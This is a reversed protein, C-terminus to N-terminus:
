ELDRFAAAYGIDGSRAPLGDRGLALVMFYPGAYPSAFGRAEAVSFGFRGYYAPDGLVFIAQWGAQEAHALGTQILRGGIGQRQKDPRVAVPGLGLARFPATLPSFAVHGAVEGGSSAALSLALDGDQRLREVLDAELATPFASVLVNRIAPYISETESVIEM